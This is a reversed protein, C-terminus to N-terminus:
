RGWAFAREPIALIVALYALTVFIDRGYLFRRGLRSMRDILARHRASAITFRVPSRPRSFARGVACTRAVNEGSFISEARSGALYM